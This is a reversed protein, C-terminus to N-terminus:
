DKLWSLSFFLFFSFVIYHLLLALPSIFLFAVFFQQESPSLLFSFINRDSFMIKRKKKTNQFRFNLITAVPGPILLPFLCLFWFLFLLSSSFNLLLFSSLFYLSSLFSFVFLECKKQIQLLSLLFSKASNNQCLLLM